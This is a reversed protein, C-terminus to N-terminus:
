ERKLRLNKESVHFRVCGKSDPVQCGCSDHRGRGIPDREILFRHEPKELPWFKFGLWKSDSEFTEGIWEPVEAQFDSGFLLKKCCRLRERLNYGSGHQDDYMSPHIRSGLCMVHYRSGIMRQWYSQEVSSDISRKSFIAERALLVQKWAEVNAYSKWKSKDPLLGITPDCPDKTIMTVWALM